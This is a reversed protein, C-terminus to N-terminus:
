LTACKELEEFGRRNMCAECHCLKNEEGSPRRVHHKCGICELEVNQIRHFGVDCKYEGFAACFIAHSCAQMKETASAYRHSVQKKKSMDNVVKLKQLM